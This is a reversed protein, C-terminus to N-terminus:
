EIAIFQGLGHHAGYGLAIPGTVPREFCLRFGYAANVGRCGGGATRLRRFDHWGIPSAPRPPTLEAAAVAELQAPPFGHLALLRALQDHPADRVGRARYKIHRPPVFPTLSEWIRATGLQPSRGQREADRGHRGADRRLCGLMGLAGLAELTLKLDSGGHGWVRRLQELARQAAGDFGGRAHVVVHDISGDADDDAPLFRAHDHRGSRVVQGAADRGLFVAHGDSIRLLAMRVREGVALAETLPPLIMSSLAFRATTPGRPSEPEPTAAAHVVAAAHAPNAMAAEVDVDRQM